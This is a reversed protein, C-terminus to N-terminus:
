KTGTATMPQIIQDLLDPTSQARELHPYKEGGHYDLHVVRFEDTNSVILTILGTSTKSNHIAAKMRADTYAMGNVAIIKEGPGLGAQYALSHMLVDAIAGTKAVRLGLSAAADVGGRRLAAKEFDSPEETYVLNYGGHVIGGLPAHASHSDLRETLLGRWDYPAIQNLAAVLDDFTYPLTLPGTNGGIGLFLAAFDNLSKQNHTLNRITTDVDLWILEGEPYYDQGLRWTSWWPSGGRLISAAIATDQVNRWTRGPRNDMNYATLALADRYQQPTWFGSRAALVGGWYQTMGEYVWLLDGRMPTKYDPTALGAPRRYKGNWSHTYEHTLLDGDLMAMAPDSFGHERVGNDSSQHHELGEGRIKDSLSLLFHYTTYHRSNYLIGAQHVLKTVAALMAPKLDLDEPADAAVDLYHNPTVGPAIPFEKFYRGMIIPSDVLQNLRVTAFHATNDSTITETSNAGNDTAIAAAPRSAGTGSGQGAFSLATGFGWGAPLTISPTIPIDRVPIGAPYMVVANWELVALNASTAQDDGSGTHGPSVLFDFNVDLTSVGQPVDVHVAYMDVDDRRWPVDKGNARIFLGAVNDIPGTPRHNGPIWEPYELPIAGAAVPIQEQVHLIKRPADRMDVHLLIPQRPAAEANAVAKKRRRANAPLPTALLVAGILLAAAVISHATRSRQSPSSLMPSSLALCHRQPVACNKMCEMMACCICNNVVPNHCYTSEVINANRL